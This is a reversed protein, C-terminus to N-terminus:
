AGSACRARGRGRPRGDHRAAPRRRPLGAGRVRRREGGGAARLLPMLHLYSVGLEALYDLRDPLADLTGSFRDIYAVYGVTRPSRTGARTSRAAGTPRACSRRGTRPPACRSGSWGTSSCTRTPGDDDGYLAELPGHVDLFWLDLRALFGVAEARGLAREAEDALAPRLRQLAAAARRRRESDPRQTIVGM